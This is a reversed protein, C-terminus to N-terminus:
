ALATHRRSRLAAGLVGFGVLMMAWGAPEPVTSIIEVSLDVTCYGCVGSPGGPSSSSDSPWIWNPTGVVNGWGYSVDQLVGGTPQVWTQPTVNSNGNNYGGSWYALNSPDTTLTESGNAFEFGTGTLNLVASFGGPGGYNIAEINLYYHNGGTLTTPTVAFATPWDNGSDVLTGLSSPSTGLYAFFANDATMSGTLLAASAAGALASLGLAAAGALLIKRIM